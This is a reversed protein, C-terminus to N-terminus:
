QVTGYDCYPARFQQKQFTTLMNYAAQGEKCQAILLVIDTNAVQLKRNTSQAQYQVKIATKARLAATKANSLTLQHIYDHHSNVALFLGGVVAVTLITLPLIHKM